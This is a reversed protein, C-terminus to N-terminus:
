KPTIGDLRARIIATTGQGPQSTLHLDVRAQEARWRMNELGQGSSSRTLMFGNGNDSLEIEFRDSQNMREIRYTITTPSAHKLANQVFEQMVKRLHIATSASLYGEGLESEQVVLNIQPFSQLLRMTQSKFEDSFRVLSISQNNLVWITERLSSLIQRANDEMRAIEPTQELAHHNRLQEVNSLLASTYAGMNDHLDRSIRKREEEVTQILALERQQRRLRWRLVARFVLLAFGLILFGAILIFWTQQYFPKQIMLALITESGEWNMGDLSCQVRFRYSGAALKPYRVTRNEETYIWGTDVGEMRYRYQQLGANPLYLGAFQITITNEPYPLVLQDIQWPNRTSDAYVQDNVRLQTIRVPPPVANLQFSAPNFLNIGGIAGFYLLGSEDSYFSNSNFENSTLGDRSFYNTIRGTRPHLKSLGYNTSLWVQGTADALSGYVFNNALGNDSTYWTPKNQGPNWRCLGRTTAIWLEGSADIRISKVYADSCADIRKLVQGNWHFLGSTTGIWISTDADTEMASIEAPLEVVPTLRTISHLASPHFRYLTSRKNFYVEDQKTRTHAYNINYTLDPLLHSLQEWYDIYASSTSQFEGFVRSGFLTVNRKNRISMSNFAAFRGSGRWAEPLEPPNYTAEGQRNFRVIGEGVVCAYVSDAHWAFINKITSQKNLGHQLRIFGRDGPTAYALGGPNTAVWITQQHWLADMVFRAGLGEGDQNTFPYYAVTKLMSDIVLVQGQNNFLYWKNKEPVALLKNISANPQDLIAGAAETHLLQNNIPHYRHMWVRGGQVTTFWVEAGQFSIPAIALAHGAPIPLQRCYKERKASEFCFYGRQGPSEQIRWFRQQLQAAYNPTATESRDLAHTSDLTSLDSIRVRYTKSTGIATLITDNRSVQIQKITDSRQHRVITKFQNSGPLLCELGNEGLVWIRGRSDDGIQTISTNIMGGRLHPAHRFSVVQYGDFRNLGDATGMWLFGSRDIHLCHITNQSLGQEVTLHKFSLPQAHLMNGLMGLFLLLLIGISSRTHASPLRM